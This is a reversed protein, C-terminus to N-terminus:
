NTEVGGTARYFMRAASNGVEAAVWAEVCNQNRGWAVLANILQTGIGRRHFRASVGVENIFLSRPKDPHLCVIGTAMGIVRGGVIALFLAHSPNRLFDSVLDPKVPNDFVDDDVNDLLSVTAHTVLHIAAPSDNLM